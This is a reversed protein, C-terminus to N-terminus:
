HLKVRCKGVTVLSYGLFDTPIALTQQLLLFICLNKIHQLECLINGKDESFKLHFSDYAGKGLPVFEVITVCM